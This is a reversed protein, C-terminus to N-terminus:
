SCTHITLAPSIYNMAILHRLHLRVCNRSWGLTNMMGTISAYFQGPLLNGFHNHSANLLCYVFLAADYGDIWINSDLLKRSIKVFGNNSEM